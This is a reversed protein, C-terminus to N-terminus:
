KQKKVKVKAKKDVKPASKAEAPAEQNKLKDKLSSMRFKDLSM